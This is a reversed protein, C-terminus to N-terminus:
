VQAIPKKDYKELKALINDVANEENINGLLIRENNEDETMWYEDENQRPIWVVGEGDILMYKNKRRLRSKLQIDISTNNIANLVGELKNFEDDSLEYKHKNKYGGPGIPMYQFLQWKIISNYEKIQDYINVIDHINDKHVVTNICINANNLSLEDLINLIDNVKLKRRFLNVLEDTSGDLPIGIVDISSIIEKSSIKKIVTDRGVLVDKILSLGVTDLNITYGLTKLTSLIYPMDKRALPEGGSMTVKSINVRKKLEALFNILDSTIYDKNSFFNYCGPCRVFCKNGGSLQIRRSLEQM